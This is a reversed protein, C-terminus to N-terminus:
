STNEYVVSHQTGTQRDYVPRHDSPATHVSHRTAVHQRNREGRLPRRALSECRHGTNEVPSSFWLLSKSYHLSQYLVSQIFSVETYPYVFRHVHIHVTDIGRFSPSRAIYLTCIIRIHGNNLPGETCMCFTYVYVQTLLTIYM